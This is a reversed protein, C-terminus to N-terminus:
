WDRERSRKLAAHANYVIPMSSPPSAGTLAGGSLKRGQDRAVPEQLPPTTLLDQVDDM